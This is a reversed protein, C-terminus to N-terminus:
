DAASREHFGHGFRSHAEQASRLAEGTLLPPDEVPVPHVLGVALDRRIEWHTQRTDPLEVLDNRGIQLRKHARRSAMRQIVGPGYGIIVLVKATAPVPTM